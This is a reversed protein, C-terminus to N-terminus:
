VIPDVGGFFALLGWYILLLGAIVIWLYERKIALCILAGLGYAVAIRQLVGM